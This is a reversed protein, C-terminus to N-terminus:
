RDEPRLTVATMNYYRLIRRAKENPEFLLAYRTKESDGWLAVYVSPASEDSVASIVKDAAFNEIQATYEGEYPLVLSLSRIPVCCLEKRTRGGLLRTVTLEGAFFSYEYEVQTLRWTFFVLVWLSLPVLALFYVFLRTASGILFLSAGWLVYLLILTVRQFYLTPTKAKAVVYEYPAGGSTVNIDRNM